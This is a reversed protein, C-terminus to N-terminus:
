RRRRCLKPDRDSDRPVLLPLEASCASYKSTQGVGDGPPGSAKSSCDIESRFKMYYIM